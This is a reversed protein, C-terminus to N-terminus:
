PHYGLKAAADTYQLHRYWRQKVAAETRDLRGAIWHFSKGLRVYSDIVTNDDDATWAIGAFVKTTQSSVEKSIRVTKQGVHTTMHHIKGHGMFRAKSTKTALILTPWPHQRHLGELVLTATHGM